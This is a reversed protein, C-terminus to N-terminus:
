TPPGLVASGSPAEGALRAPARVVLDQITGEPLELGRGFDLFAQVDAPLSGSGTRDTDAPIVINMSGGIPADETAQLYRAFVDISLWGGNALQVARTIVLGPELRVTPATASTSFEYRYHPDDRNIAARLSELRGSIDAARLPTGPQDLLHQLDRV